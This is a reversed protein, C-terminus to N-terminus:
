SVFDANKWKVFLRRGIWWGRNAVLVLLGTGDVVFDCSWSCWIEERVVDPVGHIRVAGDNQRWSRRNFVTRLFDSNGGLCRSADGDM